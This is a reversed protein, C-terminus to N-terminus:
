GDNINTPYGGDTKRGMFLITLIVAISITAAAEIVLILTSAWPLPYQLFNRGAIMTALAVALFTLLGISLGIPTSRIVIHNLRVASTVLLVGGAALVAGAQFAGGPAYKGIWLLYGGVIVIFPLLRLLLIQIQTPATEAPLVSTPALSLVGVAALLLVGIELLTDYGRFNLLVATVPNEVGSISLHAAVLNHMRDSFPPLTWVTWGLIVTLATVGLATIAKRTLDFRQARDVKNMNDSNPM